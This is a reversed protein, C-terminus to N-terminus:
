LCKEEWLRLCKQKAECWSYGASPICGHVDRDGGLLKKATRLPTAIAINSTQTRAKAVASAVVPLAKKTKCVNGLRIAVQLSNRAEKALQAAKEYNGDAMATRYSDRLEKVKSVLSEIETVNTCIKRYEALSNEVATIEMDSVSEKEVSNMEQAYREKWNWKLVERNAWKKQAIENKANEILKEAVIYNETSIANRIQVLMAKASALGTNLVSVDATSNLDEATINEENIYNETENLKALLAAKIRTKILQRNATWETRINDWQAAEKKWLGLAVGRPEPGSVKIANIGNELLKTSINAALEPNGVVYIKTINRDKILAAIEPVNDATKLVKVITHRYPLAAAGVVYKWNPAAVLIIKLEKPPASNVIENEAAQEIRSENGTIENLEYQKLREKIMNKSQMGIYYVKTVNLEKLTSLIEAPLDEGSVPLLTCNKQAAMVSAYSQMATDTNENENDEVVVACSVGVPWFYKAAAIATGTRTIGWIRVVDYGKAKLSDELKQSVVAPGGVIIIKSVGAATLNAQTSSDIIDGSVPLVPAGATNAAASASATDISTVETTMIVTDSAFVISSVFIMSIILFFAYKKM